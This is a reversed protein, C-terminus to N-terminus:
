ATREVGIRAALGHGQGPALRVIDNGANCTELCLMRQYEERGMDAFSGAKVDWPNWVVTSHSGQKGVTICRQGAADFVRCSAETNQYIRDTEACFRVDGSQTKLQGNDLKDIYSCGDLGEIRTQLIDDTCLYSHLAQSVEFAVTGTNRTHLELTLEQGVTVRLELDFPHNWLTRSTADDQLGLRLWVNPGSLGTGRVQWQRNRAFGHGPQGPAGAGFWPWCIPIGGRVAKGAQLVAVESVWLVPEHGIPQWRLVQAGNLAVQATASQSHVQMVVFGPVPEVFQLQGNLGFRQNLLDINM